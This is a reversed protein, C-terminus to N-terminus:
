AAVQVTDPPVFTQRRWIADPPEDAGPVAFELYGFYSAILREGADLIARRGHMFRTNDLMLLDGDRWHVPVTIPAAAANVADLWVDPVPQGDDLAPFGRRGLYDRAFLLFNGFAPEDTFMPKHLAPRAFARVVGQPTRVFQYPCGAPRARLRADDPTETGLWYRLAAPSAPQIYLLRRGEFGARVAEPLRRVLEVGDCVTTEGGGTPAQLCYFFCVDPKWPERSLEPHLPFPDVGANVSQINARADLVRRDPSENFVSSTCFRGAFRHFAALDPAAGRILLAGYATYATVVAERTVADLGGAAELLAYPRGPEPAAFAPDSM